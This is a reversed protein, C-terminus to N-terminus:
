ASEAIGLASVSRASAPVQRRISRVRNHVGLPSIAGGGAWWFAESSSAVARTHRAHMKDPCSRNMRRSDAGGHPARVAVRVLRWVGCKSRSQHWAAADRDGRSIICASRIIPRIACDAGAPAPCSPLAATAAYARSVDLINNGVHSLLDEWSKPLM